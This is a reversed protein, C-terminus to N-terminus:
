ILLINSLMTRGVSTHKLCICRRTSKLVSHIKFADDPMHHSTLLNRKQLNTMQIDKNLEWEGNTEIFAASIDFNQVTKNNNCVAATTVIISSAASTSPENLQSVSVTAPLPSSVIDEQQPAAEPAPRFFSTLSKQHIARAKKTPPEGTTNAESM